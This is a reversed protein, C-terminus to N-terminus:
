DVKFLIFILVKTPPHNIIPSQHYSSLSQCCFSSSYEMSCCMYERITDFGNKKQAWILWYLEGQLWLNLLMWVRYFAYVVVNWLALGIRFLLYFLLCHAEFGFPLVILIKIECYCDCLAFDNIFGQITEIPYFQPFLSCVSKDVRLQLLQITGKILHHVLFPLPTRSLYSFHHTSSSSLFFSVFSLLESSSRLGYAGM